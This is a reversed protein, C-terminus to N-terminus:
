VVADAAIWKMKLFSKGSSSPQTSNGVLWAYLGPGASIEGQEKRMVATPVLFERRQLQKNYRSRCRSLIKTDSPLESIGWPVKAFTALTELMSSATKRLLRKHLEAVNKLLSTWAPLNQVNTAKFRTIRIDIGYMAYAGCSERIPTDICTKAKNVKFGSAELMKTVFRASGRPVVIDDGFVRLPLKSDAPHIAAQAIAWFVLTEVPFCVASGMSAFCVSKKIDGNISIARSRYRTVLKFFEKPFLLRCLKLTVTDSADKLDITALDSRKCLGANLSQDDFRISRKTLPHAHILNSLVSWLGQQGFQNEKPEICIIRPGRFDKPVCVARAVSNTDGKVFPGLSHEIWNEPTEISPRWTYLMPDLGKIRKFNWKSLGKEKCAVAGPGHKGIPDTDWQALVASLQDGDMVLSRILHRASNILWSPITIEPQGSIRESFAKLADEDSVM